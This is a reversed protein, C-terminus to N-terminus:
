LEEHGNEAEAHGISNCTAALRGRAFFHTLHSTPGNSTAVLVANRGRKGIIKNFSIEKSYHTFFGSLGSEIQLDCLNFSKAFHNRIKLTRQFGSQGVQNIKAQM